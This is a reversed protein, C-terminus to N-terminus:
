VEIAVIKRIVAMGIVQGVLAVTVMGWGVPHSVLQGIYGPNITYLLAGIGLPLLMFILASFRGQATLAKIEGQIRVRERITESINDLVEALNGGIQRQILIATVILDFDQSEVRENLNQLAEETPIGMRIERLVIKFEEAIPGTTDGAIMQMAQLFSYGSKLSNSMVTLMDHLQRDFARTRRRKEMRLYWFPLVGLLPAFLVGVAPKGILVGFVLPALVLGGTVLLFEQATLQVGARRLAEAIREERTRLLTVGQMQQKLRSILGPKKFREARSVEALLAEEMSVSRAKVVEEVRQRMRRASRGALGQLLYYYFFLLVLTLVGTALWVM